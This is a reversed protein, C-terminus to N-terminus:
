AGRKGEQEMEDLMDLLAEGIGVNMMMDQESILGKAMDQKAQRIARWVREREKQIKDVYEERDM